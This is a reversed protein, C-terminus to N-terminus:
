RLFKLLIIAIVNSNKFIIFYLFININERNRKESKLIKRMAIERVNRIVLTM